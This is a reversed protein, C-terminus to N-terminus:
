VMIPRIVFLFDKDQLQAAKKPLNSVNLWILYLISM